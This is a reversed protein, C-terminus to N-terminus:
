MWGGGSEFILRSNRLGTDARVGVRLGLLPIRDLFKSGTLKMRFRLGGEIEVPGIRKDDKDWRQGIAVYWDKHRGALSPTILIDAGAWDTSLGSVKLGINWAVLPVRRFGVEGFLPVTGVISDGAVSDRRYALTMLMGSLLTSGFGPRKRPDHDGLPGTISGEPLLRYERVCDAMKDEPAPCPSDPWRGVGGEWLARESRSRPTNPFVRAWPHLARTPKSMSADYGAAFTGSAFNDRLGWADNIARNVDYGPTYFGDGNRDPVSAHKDEEVLVTLPLRLGIAREGNRGVRLVNDLGFNGHAAGQVETVRVEWQGSNTAPEANVVYFSLLIEELDGCHGADHSYYFSYRIAFTTRARVPQRGDPEQESSWYVTPRGTPQARGKLPVPHCTEVVPGRPSPYEEPATAYNEDPSLWLIPAACQAIREITPREAGLYVVNEVIPLGSICYSQDADSPVAGTISAALIWTNLITSM